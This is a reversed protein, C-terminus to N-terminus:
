ELGMMILYHDKGIGDFVLEFADFLKQPEENMIRTFYIEDMPSVKHSGDQLESILSSCIIMIPNEPNIDKIADWVSNGLGTFNVYTELIRRMLNTISINHVKNTTDSAIDEKIQILASWLLFYDNVIPKENLCISSVGNPKQITYFNRDM